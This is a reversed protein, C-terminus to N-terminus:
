GVVLHLEVDGEGTLRSLDGPDDDWFGPFRWFHSERFITGKFELNRLRLPVVLGVQLGVRRGDDDRM